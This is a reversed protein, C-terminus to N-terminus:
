QVCRCSVKDLGYDSQSPISRNSIPVGTLTDSYTYIYHGNLSIGNLLMASEFHIENKGGQYPTRTWEGYLNFDPQLKHERLQELSPLRLSMARCYANAEHWNIMTVPEDKPTPTRSDTKKFNAGLMRRWRGYKKDYFGVWGTSDASTIKGASYLFQDFESVTVLRSRAISGSTNQDCTLTFLIVM